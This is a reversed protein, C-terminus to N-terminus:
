TSHTYDHVALGFHGEGNEGPRQVVYEGPGLLKVITLSLDPFHVPDAARRRALFESLARSDPEQPLKDGLSEAVEVIRPWREPERVVRRIAPSKKSELFEAMATNAAVMFSEIVDRARNHETVTLDVVKGDETVPKAEITQLNLAGNRERLAHLWGMVEAQLRLQEGLGAVRSVFPSETADSELWAGTPEYALKARNHVLARYVDTSKVAGDGGVVMEIVVALRDAGEVLSTIDTSLEEPLMPFTEVGTYVSTTNRGARRDIASGRPAFADVDAIGILLRVDGGPLKEAFEVQDLDRSERNDISSWLLGRMDRASADSLPQRRARAELERAEREADPPFDPEFGADIMARRALARLNVSDHQNM